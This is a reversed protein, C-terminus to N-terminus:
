LSLFTTGCVGVCDAFCLYQDSRYQNKSLVRSFCAWYSYRPAIIKESQISDNDIFRFLEDKNVAKMNSQVSM